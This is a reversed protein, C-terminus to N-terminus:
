QAEHNLLQAGACPWVKQRLSWFRYYFVSKCHDVVKSDVKEKHLQPANKAVRPRIRHRKEDLEIHGAWEPIEEPKVLGAPTVYFFKNPVQNDALHLRAYKTRPTKGSRRDKWNLKEIKEADKKFDARTLKIEFETAYGADTVAWMDCEFWGEPTYNPCCLKTGKRLLWDYLANQAHRETM